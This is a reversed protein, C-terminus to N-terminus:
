LCRELTYEVLALLQSRIQPVVSDGTAKSLSANAMNAYQTAIRRADDIIPSVRLAELADYCEDVDDSTSTFYRRAQSDGSQLWLLNVLSPTRQKLDTGAPKGLLDEDATVDLIDDIMQFAIGANLGFEFLHSRNEESAGALHAGVAGALAFLSGTKKSVINIYEALDLARSPDIRGELVEGETLRICADETAEVIFRDLRACLGFAKVLLFDGTLLTHPMGFKVFASPQSRRTPSEDIIDDHLLTAMHILEIGAAVDILQPSPTGMGFLKGSLVALLPRVRKGGLKLLYRSIDELPQADSALLLGIRNEVLRLGDSGTLFLAQFSHKLLGLRHQKRATEPLLSIAQQVERPKLM